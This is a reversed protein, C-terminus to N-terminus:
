VVELFFLESAYYIYICVTSSAKFNNGEFKHIIALTMEQDSAWMDIAKLCSPVDTTRPTPLLSEQEETNYTCNLLLSSSQYKLFFDGSFEIWSVGRTICDCGQVGQIEDM